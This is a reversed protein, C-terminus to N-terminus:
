FNASLVGPSIASFTQDEGIVTRTVPRFFSVFKSTTQSQGDLSSTANSENKEQHTVDDCSKERSRSRLKALRISRDFHEEVKQSTDGEFYSLLYCSASLQKWSRAKEVEAEEEAHRTDFNHTLSFNQEAVCQDFLCFLSDVVKGDM